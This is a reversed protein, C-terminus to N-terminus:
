ATSYIFYSLHPFPSLTEFLQAEHVTNEYRIQPQGVAWPNACDIHWQRPSSVQAFILLTHLKVPTWHFILNFYKSSLFFSCTSVLSVLFSLLSVIIFPTLNPPPPPSITYGIFFLFPPNWPPHHAWGSREMEANLFCVLLGVECQWVEHNLLVVFFFVTSKVFVESPPQLLLFIQRNKLNRVFCHLSDSFSAACVSAAMEGTRGPRASAGSWTCAGVCVRARRRSRRSRNKRMLNGTHWPLFLHAWSWVAACHVTFPCFVLACSLCPVRLNCWFWLGLKYLKQTTNLLIFARCFFWPRVSWINPAMASTSVETAMGLWCHTLQSQQGAPASSIQKSIYQRNIHFFLAKFEFQVCVHLHKEPNTSCLMDVFGCQVHWTKTTTNKTAKTAKNNM